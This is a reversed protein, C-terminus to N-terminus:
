APEVRVVADALLTVRTFPAWDQLTKQCTPLEAPSPVLVVNTPFIRAKADIVSVVPAVTAPLTSARFPATVNSAFVIVADVHVVGLASTTAAAAM